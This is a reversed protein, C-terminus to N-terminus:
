PDANAKDEPNYVRYVPVLAEEATPEPLAEGQAQKLLILAVNEASFNYTDGGKGGVIKAAGKGMMKGWKEAAELYKDGSQLGKRIADIVMPFLAEFEQDYYRLMQQRAAITDEHDLIRYIMASSYGTAEQIEKPKKGALHLALVEFWRHPITRHDSKKMKRGYALNDGSKSTLDSQQPLENM